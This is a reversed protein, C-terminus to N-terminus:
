EPSRFRSTPARRISFSSISAAREATRVCAAVQERTDLRSFTPDVSTQVAPDSSPALYPHDELRFPTTGDLSSKAGDGGGMLGISLFQNLETLARLMAIRPDFHAGSGFEINEQGNNMWHALAVYSPVGLDNTVDLVWLRRGVDALRSRLERVYSD